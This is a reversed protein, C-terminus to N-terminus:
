VWMKIIHGLVIDLLGCLMMWKNGHLVDLLNKWGNPNRPDRLGELDLTIQVQM